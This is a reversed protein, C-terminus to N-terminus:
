KLNFQFVVALLWDFQLFKEHLLILIPLLMIQLSIQCLHWPSIEFNNYTIERATLRTLNSVIKFYRLHYKHWIYRVILVNQSLNSVLLLKMLPIHNDLHDCSHDRSNKVTVSMKAVHATTMKLTLTFQIVDTSPM